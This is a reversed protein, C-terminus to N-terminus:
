LSPAFRLGNVVDCSGDDCPNTPATPITPQATPIAPPQSVSPYVVTPQNCSQSYYVSRQSSPASVPAWQVTRSYTTNYGQRAARRAAIRDRLGDKQELAATQNVKGYMDEIEKVSLDGIQGTQGIRPRPKEQEAVVGGNRGLILAVCVAFTLLCLLLASGTSFRVRTDTLAVDNM